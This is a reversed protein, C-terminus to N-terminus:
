FPQKDRTLSMQIPAQSKGDATLTDPNIPLDLLVPEVYTYGPKLVQFILSSLTHFVQRSFILM